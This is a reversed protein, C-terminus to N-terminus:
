SPLIGCRGGYTRRLLRDLKLIVTTDGLLKMLEAYFIGYKARDSEAHLACTYKFSTYGAKLLFEVVDDGSVTGRRPVNQLKIVEALTKGFWDNLFSTAMARDDKTKFRSGSFVDRGNTKVKDAVLDEVPKSLLYLVTRYAVADAATSEYNAKRFERVQNPGWAVM